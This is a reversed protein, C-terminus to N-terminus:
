SKSNSVLNFVFAIIFSIGTAFAYIWTVKKDVEAIKDSLQNELDDIRKILYTEFDTMLDPRAMCKESGYNYCNGKTKGIAM